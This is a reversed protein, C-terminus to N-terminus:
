ETDGDTRFRHGLAVLTRRLEVYNYIEGNFVLVCGTVEDAMPQRSASKTDIIALRTQALGVTDAVFTGRDDPGRHALAACARELQRGTGADTAGLVGVIGCVQGDYALQDARGSARDGATVPRSYRHDRDVM